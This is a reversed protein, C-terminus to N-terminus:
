YNILVLSECLWMYTILLSIMVKWFKWVIWLQSEEVFEVNDNKKKKQTFDIYAM